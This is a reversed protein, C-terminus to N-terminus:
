KKVFKLTYSQTVTKVQILYIGTPLDNVDIAKTTYNITRVIKGDISQIQINEIIEDTVINLISTTPNPYLEINTDISHNNIGADPGIYVCYDEYEGYVAVNPCEVPVLSSSSIMGIRMKTIGHVATSPINM